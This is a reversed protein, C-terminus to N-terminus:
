IVGRLPSLSFGEGDNYKIVQLGQMYADLAASTSNGSIVIYFKHLCESLSEFTETLACGQYKLPDVYCAPHSKITLLYHSTVIPFCRMMFWGLPEM